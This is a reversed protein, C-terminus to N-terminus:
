GNCKCFALSGLQQAKLFLQVFTYYASGAVVVVFLVLLVAGKRIIKKM